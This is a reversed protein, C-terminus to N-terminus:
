ESKQNLKSVPMTPQKLVSYVTPLCASSLSTTGLITGLEIPSTPILAHKHLILHVGTDSNLLESFKLLSLQERFLEQEQSSLSVTIRNTYNLGGHTFDRILYNSTTEM